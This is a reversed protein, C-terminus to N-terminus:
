QATARDDARATCELEIRPGSEDLVAVRLTLPPNDPNFTVLRSKDPSLAVIDSGSHVFATKGNEPNILFSGPADHGFQVEVQHFGSGSLTGLSWHTESDGDANKTTPEAWDIYTVVPAAAPKIVLRRQERRV